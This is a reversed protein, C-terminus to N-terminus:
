LPYKNNVFIWQCRITAGSYNTWKAYKQMETFFFVTNTAAVKTSRSKRLRFNKKATKKASLGSRTYLRTSYLKYKWPSEILRFFTAFLRFSFVTYFSFFNCCRFNVRRIVIVSVFVRFSDTKTKLKLELKAFRRKKKMEHSKKGRQALQRKSSSRKEDYIRSINHIVAIETPNQAIKVAITRTRIDVILFFVFEKMTRASRMFATYITQVIAWKELSKLLSLSITVLTSAPMWKMNTYMSSSQLTTTRAIFIRREGYVIRIFIIM